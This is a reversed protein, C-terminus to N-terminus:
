DTEDSDRVPVYYAQEDHSDRHEDMLRNLGNDKDQMWHGKGQWNWVAVSPVVFLAGCLLCKYTVDREQGCLECDQPRNRHLRIQELQNM